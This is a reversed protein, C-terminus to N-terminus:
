NLGKEKDFLPQTSCTDIKLISSIKLFHLLKLNHFLHTSCAPLKRNSFLNRHPKNFHFFFNTEIKIPFNFFVSNQTVYPDTWLNRKAIQLLFLHRIYLLVTHSFWVFETIFVRNKANSWKHVSHMAWSTFNSHKRYSKFSFEVM